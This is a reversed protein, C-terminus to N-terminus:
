PPDLVAAPAPAASDRSGTQSTSQVPVRLRLMSIVAAAAAAGGAVRLLVPGAAIGAMHFGAAVGVAGATQGLLRATALMGGAAGSRDRPAAGIMTRNNPSQFLGFGVGCLAMRWAIDFNGFGADIQSLAFLGASFLALGIGGLLGAPYRDALRGAFPAAFGVALPWPTMLLGSEVVSRSLLTQLLFPLAVFALMQAAFSTISTAISLSFIPIRLLDLPVLPAPRRRERRFLLVGGLLALAVLPAGVAPDQRTWTETGFVLLGLTMASLAASPYDPRRGHGPTHPLCRGGIAFAALGIPLNVAFLWPWEGLRLIAAALSPGTAASISLVMANYGMGRGLM